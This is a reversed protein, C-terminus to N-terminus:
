SQETRPNLKFTVRVAGNVPIAGPDIATADEAIDGSSQNALHSERYPSTSDPNVDEIGIVEGLEVNAASCYNKAKEIAAEIANRRAQARYDKLASTGFSFSKIHYAGADVAASIIDEIKALDRIVVNTEISARYGVYRWVGNSHEREQSLKLNSSRSEVKQWAQLVKNLQKSVDKAKSFAIQPKKDVIAIEFILSAFDPNVRIVASGFCVIGEIPKSKEM